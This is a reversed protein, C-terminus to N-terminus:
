ERGALAILEIGEQTYMMSGMGGRESIAEVFQDGSVPVGDVQLEAVESRDISITYMLDDTNFVIRGSVSCAEADFYVDSFQTDGNTPATLLLDELYAVDSSVSESEDWCYISTIRGGEVVVEVTVMDQSWIYEFLEYGSVSRTGISYDYTDSLPIEWDFFPEIALMMVISPRSYVREDGPGANITIAGGENEVYSVFDGTDGEHVAADDADGASNVAVSSTSAPPASLASEPRRAQSIFGYGVIGAIVVAAVGVVIHPAFKSSATLPTPAPVTTASLEEAALAWEESSPEPTSGTLAGPAAAAASAAGEPPIATTGATARPLLRVIYGPVALGIMALGLMAIFVTDPPNGLESWLFACGAIAIGVIRATTIRKAILPDKELPPAQVAPAREVAAGQESPTVDTSADPADGSSREYIRNATKEAARSWSKTWYFYIGVVIALPPFYIPVDDLNFLGFVGAAIFVTGWLHNWIWAYVNYATNLRRGM